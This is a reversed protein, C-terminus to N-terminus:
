RKGRAGPDNCEAVCNMENVTGTIRLPEGDSTREIVKGHVTVWIWVGDM